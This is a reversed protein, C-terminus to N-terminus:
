QNLKKVAEKYILPDIEYGIYKGGKKIVIKGLGATGMFPDLVTMGKKYYKSLFLALTKEPFPCPHQKTEKYDIYYIKGSSFKTQVKKFVLWQHCNSHANKKTYYDKSWRSDEVLEIGSLSKVFNIHREVLYFGNDLCIKQILGSLQIYAGAMFVSDAAEVIITGNNKLVRHCEKLVRSIIKKYDAFSLSDTNNGYKTGINYPPGAIILDVSSNPCESM